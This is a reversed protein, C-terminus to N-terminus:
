ALTPVPADNNHECERNLRQRFYTGACRPSSEALPERNCQARVYMHVHHAWVWTRLAEEPSVPWAGSAAAGSNARQRRRRPLLAWAWCPKRRVPSGAAIAFGAARLRRRLSAKHRPPVGEGAEVELSGAFTPPPPQEAAAVLQSTASSVAAM